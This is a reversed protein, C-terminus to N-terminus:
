FLNELLPGVVSAPFAKEVIALVGLKRVPDLKQPDTETTVMIISVSATAPTQRLYSVLARGDMLPMNYDTVILDFNERAAVAVAQAGDAVELFQTFGLEKLVNKANLRAVGSDDVIMVRARDRSVKASNVGKASIQATSAGTVQTVAASLQESTFPKILLQVRHLDGPSAAEAEASESTVLIFGPANTPVEARIRQALELGNMDPLYLASVVARPCHKRVEDIATAGNVATGVVSLSQEQLYNRIIAAQVRSPEVVLVSIQDAAPRAEDPSIVLTCGSIDATSQAARPLGGPLVVTQGSQTDDPPLEATIAELEGVVEAMSAIRQEVNKALMKQFLQDLRPPTQPVAAALSPIPADRHAFLIAMLTSGPYPSKGTLLFHLTCGLSYIDARHDITTADIAQEPPMYDPTGLAGGAMTVDTGVAPGDEGHNLRALGLDTIKVTGTEELLLNQPKIDRHVIGQAHAYALGRATQLVYDLARKLGLPGDREVCVALDRGQVYEMVLFHGSEAEDADYAMVINPHGLSAITEVERQFRKIYLTDKSLNTALVKLAVVRKMRRHRAKFVTGMGGAGLRDLIDYNGIRLSAGRGESLAAIQFRTFGSDTLLSVLRTSDESALGSLKTLQEESLLGSSSVSYWLDTFSATEPRTSSNM